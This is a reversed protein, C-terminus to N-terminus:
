RFNTSRDIVHGLSWRWNINSVYDDATKAKTYDSNWSGDVISGIVYDNVTKSKDSGAHYGKGGAFINDPYYSNINGNYGGIKEAKDKTQILYHKTNPRGSVISRLSLLLCIALTLLRTKQFTMRSRGM